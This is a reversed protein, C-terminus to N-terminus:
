WSGGSRRLVAVAREPRIQVALTHPFARDVTASEVEPVRQVLSAALVEADIKVLSAGREDSLARRVATQVRSKGGTVEIRQVAFVSTERAGVYLGAAVAVLALGAALSRGSPLALRIARRLPARLVAARVSSRDRSRPVGTEEGGRRRKRRPRAPRNRCLVSTVRPRISM